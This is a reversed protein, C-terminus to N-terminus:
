ATLWLIIYITNVYYIGSDQMVNQFFFFFVDHLSYFVLLHINVMRIVSHYHAPHVPEHDM